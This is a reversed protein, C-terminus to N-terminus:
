QHDPPTLADLYFDRETEIPDKCLLADEVFVQNLDSNIFRRGRQAWDRRLHRQVGHKAVPTVFGTAPPAEDM